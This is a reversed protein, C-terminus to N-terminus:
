PTGRRDPAQHQDEGRALQEALVPIKRASLIGRVLVFTVVIKGLTLPVSLVILGGLVVTLVQAGLWFILGASLAPVRARRAWAFCGLMAAGVVLNGFLGAFAEVYDNRSPTVMGASLEVACWAIGFGVHLIAIVLLVIAARGAHAKLDRFDESMAELRAELAERLQRPVPLRCSPCVGRGLHIAASCSPCPVSVATM